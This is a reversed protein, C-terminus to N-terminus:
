QVIARRYGAAQADAESCFMEEARTQDYYPMGPLHYIWQGRRNRNGKIVCGGPSSSNTRRVVRPPASFGQVEETKRRERYAQPVEFKSDWLGLQANRAAAEDAEYITSYQTFAVAWGRSVMAKGLDLDGVRCVSVARGYADMSKRECRVLQGNTLAELQTKAQLGCAWSKNDRNCQQSLEPADIGFLRVSLGAVSLSDGDVVRASGTLIRATAPSAFAVALVLLPYFLRVM